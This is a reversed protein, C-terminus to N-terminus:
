LFSGDIESDEVSAVGGKGWNEPDRLRLVEIAKRYDQGSSLNLDLVTNYLFSAGAKRVLTVAWLEPEKKIAAAKVWVEFSQVPIGALDLAVNLPCGQEIYEALEHAVAKGCVTHLTPSLGSRTTWDHKIGSKYSSNVNAMQM